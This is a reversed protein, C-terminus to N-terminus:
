RGEFINLGFQVIGALLVVGGLVADIYVLWVELKSFLKFMEPPFPHISNLHSFILSVIWGFIFLATFVVASGVLHGLLHLISSWFTDRSRAWAMSNLKVWRADPLSDPLHASENSFHLV